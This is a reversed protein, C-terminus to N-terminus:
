AEPLEDEPLEGVGDEVDSPPLEELFADRIDEGEVERGAALDAVIAQAGRLAALAFGFAATLWAQGAPFEGSSAWAEILPVFSVGLLSLLAWSAPGFDVKKVSAIVLAM